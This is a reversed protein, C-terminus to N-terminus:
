VVKTFRSAASPTERKLWRMSPVVFALATVGALVAMGGLVYFLPVGLLATAEGYDEARLAQRAMCWAILAFVVAGILRSLVRQVARLARPVPVLDVTIHGSRLALLPYLLFIMAALLMELLETGGYLPRNLANRAVVDVTVIIMLLLLCFAGAVGLWREIRGTSGAAM